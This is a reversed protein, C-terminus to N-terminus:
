LKDEIGLWTKRKDAMGSDKSFHLNFIESDSVGETTVIELNQELNSLYEKWESSSSTGLGKYYRSEYKENKHEDKWKKFELEDYFNILEKKYKVKVIPTNLIYVINMDFIEPWFKYFSNLLLARISYGIIGM